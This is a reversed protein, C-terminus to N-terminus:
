LFLLSCRHGCLRIRVSKLGAFGRLGTNELPESRHYGDNGFGLSQQQQQQSLM